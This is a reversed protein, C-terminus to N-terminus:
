YMTAERALAKTPRPKQGAPLFAQGVPMMYCQPNAVIALNLGAPVRLVLVVSEFRPSIGHAIRKSVPKAMMPYM